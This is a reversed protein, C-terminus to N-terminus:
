CKFSEPLTLGLEAARKKVDEFPADVAWEGTNSGAAGAKMDLGLLKAQRELVTVAARVAKEDLAGEEVSQQIRAVCQEYLWECRADHEAFRRLAHEANAARMERAAENLLRFAHRPTIGLQAAAKETPVGRGRLELLGRIMEAHALLLEPDKLKGPADLSM